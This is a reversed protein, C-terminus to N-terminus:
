ACLMMLDSQYFQREQAPLEKMGARPITRHAELAAM